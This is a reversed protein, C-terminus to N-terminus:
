FLGKNRKKDALVRRNHNARSGKNKEKLHYQRATNQPTPNKGKEEGQKGAFHSDGGKRKGGGGRGKGQTGQQGPRQLIRVPAGFPVVPEKEEEEEEEDDEDSDDDKAVYRSHRLGKQNLRHLSCTLFIFGASLALNLLVVM